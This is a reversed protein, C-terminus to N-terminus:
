QPTELYEYSEEIQGNIIKVPDLLTQEGILILNNECRILGRAVWDVARYYLQHEQELVRGALSDAHDEPKIPVIAQAIVPGGDLEATVFHVSAGHESDGADIARQHTQTGRYKPLLSPHINLLKGSFHETFDATLIRMFGALIVIDPKFADIAKILSQDFADRTEFQTHDVCSTPINHTQAYELGAAKPRNSIISVIDIACLGNQSARHLSQMNSGRGSILVVARAKTPM